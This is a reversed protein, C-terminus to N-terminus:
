TKCTKFLVKAEEVGLGGGSCVCMCNCVCVCICAVYAPLHFVKQEVMQSLEMGGGRIIMM